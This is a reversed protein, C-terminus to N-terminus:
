MVRIRSYPDVRAHECLLKNMSIELRALFDDWLIEGLRNGPPIALDNLDVAVNRIGALAVM